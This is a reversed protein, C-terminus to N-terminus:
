KKFFVKKIIIIALITTFLHSRNKNHNRKHNNTNNNM